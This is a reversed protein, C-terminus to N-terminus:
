TGLMAEKAPPVRALVNGEWFMRGQQFLWEARGADWPIVYRQPERAGFLALVWIEEIHYALERMVMANWLGQAAHKTPVDSTGAKGWGEDRKISATKLELLVHRKPSVLAKGDPTALAWPQRPHVLTGFSEARRVNIPKETEPTFFHPRHELTDLIFSEQGSGWWMRYTEERPPAEGIKELYVDMPSRYECFGLAAGIDSGGLGTRRLALQEESLSM